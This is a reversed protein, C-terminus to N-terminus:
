KVVMKCLFCIPLTQPYIMQSRLLIKLTLETVDKLKVRILCLVTFKYM